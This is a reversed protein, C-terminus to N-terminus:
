ELIGLENPIIAVIGSFVWFELEDTVSLLDGLVITSRVQDATECSPYNHGEHQLTIKEKPIGYIM